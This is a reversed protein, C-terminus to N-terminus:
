LGTVTASPNAFRPLRVALTTGQGMVSSITVEGGHAEVLSRVISLGLGAGRAAGPTRWHPDFVREIQEPPIGPGTDAVLIAIMADQVVGGVSIRGKAPTFKLANGIINNMVQTMRSVDMPVWPLEETLQLQLQIDANAAIPEFFDMADKLLTAVSADKIQLTLSSAQLSAFDVLDDVLHLASVAARKLRGSVTATNPDSSSALREACLMVVNLPTRLDHSVMALLVQHAQTAKRAEQAAARLNLLNMVHDSLTKLAEIQIEDLQRPQVDLVCLTGIPLNSSTKLLAGAYFRLRPDGTVLPNDAFRVDLLTDPVVLLDRELIAHACLSTDLPTERVGLGVEAKFWQRNEDILNVVAIPTRCIAAVLKVIADFEAERPTDLIEYARLASLRAYQNTPSEAKVPRRVRGHRM